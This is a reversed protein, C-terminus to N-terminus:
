LNKAARGQVLEQYLREYRLAIKEWTFREKWASYGAAALRAREEPSDILDEIARAVSAPNAKVLGEKVTEGPLV